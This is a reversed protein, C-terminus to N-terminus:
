HSLADEAANATAVEGDTEFVSLFLDRARARTAEGVDPDLLVRRAFDALDQVAWDIRYFAILAPNAAASGYGEEFATAETDTTLGAVASGRVFMLDREPPALMVEDWDVVCIGSEVVLVNGIHLDAHCPVFRAPYSAASSRIQAGLEEARRVLHAITARHAMWFTMVDSAPEDLFDGDPEGASTRALTGVGAAEGRRAGDVGGALAARRVHRDVRRTMETAKPRFDERPLLRALETPLTTAHLRAAFSGLLRWRDLDFGARLGSPADVFPYILVSWPGMEVWPRGDLPVIPALVDSAGAGALLQPVLVGAPRISRRVKVFWRRGDASAARYTWAASDNGLPTFTLEDVAIGYGVELTAGLDGDAIAPRELV